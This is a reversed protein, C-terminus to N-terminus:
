NDAYCNWAVSIPTVFYAGDQWGASPWSKEITVVCAGDVLRTGRKFYNCLSDVAKTPLGWADDLPWHFSFQFLGKNENQAAEGLGAPWPQGPMFDVRIWPASIPPKFLRNPEAIGPVPSRTAAWTKLRAIGLKTITFYLNEM